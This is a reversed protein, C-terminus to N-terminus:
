TFSHFGWKGNFIFYIVVFFNQTGLQQQLQLLAYFHNEVHIGKEYGVNKYEM